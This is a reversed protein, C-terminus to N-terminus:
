GQQTRQFLGSALRGVQGALELELLQAQLSATDLGCRAQLADLSVPDHGLARLLAGEAAPQTEDAAPKPTMGPLPPQRLQVAGGGPPGQHFPM